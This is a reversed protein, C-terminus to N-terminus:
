PTLEHLLARIAKDNTGMHDGDDAFIARPGAKRAIYDRAEPNEAGGETFIYNLKASTKDALAKYFTAVKFSRDEGAGMWIDVLYISSFPDPGPGALLNMGPRWGGSFLYLIQRSPTANHEKLTQMVVRYSDTGDVNMSAAVFIHFRDRLATMYNWM